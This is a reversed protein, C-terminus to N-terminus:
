QKKGTLLDKLATRARHLTTKVDSESLSMIEATERVSKEEIDRLQLISRQKEPLANITDHLQRQQENLQIRDLVSPSTTDTRDHTEEDLSIVRHHALAKRDLALNRTMTLALSEINRIEEAATDSSETPITQTSTKTPTTNCYREWLRLMIDQVIDEAEERNLVIRLATRFMVNKLPLIDRTFDM